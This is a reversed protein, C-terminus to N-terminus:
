KQLITNLENVLNSWSQSAPDIVTFHDEGEVVIIKALDKYQTTQTVPVISDESGTVLITETSGIIPQAIKYTQPVDEPEGGLFAQTANGGLGAEAADILNTVAAQGVVVKPNILPNAGPSNEALKTRSGSWLALHGGSSHGVVVVQNTDLKYEASVEDLYDIAAAVDILTGPFGGNLDGVRRYEINWTAYGQESLDEALPQMLDLGFNATWFGGHILVIVPHPGASDPVTLFGFQQPETGYSFKIEREDTLTAEDFIEPSESSAKSQESKNSSCALPLLLLSFLILRM